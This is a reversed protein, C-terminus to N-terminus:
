GQVGRLCRVAFRLMPQAPLAAIVALRDALTPEDSLFRVMRDPRTRDFLSLFWTPAQAPDDRLARLFVRDLLDLDAPRVRPRRWQWSGRESASIAQRALDKAGRQCASFLYGSAPRMWGGATGAMVIRLDATATVPIPMMPLVGQENRLINTRPGFREAILARQQPLLDALHPQRRFATLEMLAQRPGTPLVYTFQIENSCHRFDMLMATSPHFYDEDLSIESGHFVQWLGSKSTAEDITPPRTDIVSRASIAGQDTHVVLSDQIPEIAGARQGLSLEFEPHRAVCDTALRYFRDAPLLAYPREGASATVTRGAHAVQWRPWRHTIGAAFPHEAGEWFCWSRDHSFSSRPDVLCVTPLRKGTTASLRELWAVFSLGTLGAGIVVVDFASEATM